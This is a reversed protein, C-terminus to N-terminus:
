KDRERQHADSQGTVSFAKRRRWMDQKERQRQLAQEGWTNTKQVGLLVASTEAVPCCPYPYCPSSHATPPLSYFPFPHAILNPSHILPSPHNALVHHPHTTLPRSTFSSFPRHVIQSSHILSPSPCAPLSLSPHLLSVDGGSWWM